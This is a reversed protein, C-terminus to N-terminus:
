DRKEVDHGSGEGGSMGVIMGKVQGLMMTTPRIAANRCTHMNLTKLSTNSGKLGVHRGMNMMDTAMYEMGSAAVATEGAKNGALAVTIYGTQGGRGQYVNFRGM